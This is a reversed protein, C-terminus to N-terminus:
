HGHPGSLQRHQAGAREGDSNFNSGSESWPSNAGPDPASGDPSEPGPGPSAVELREREDGVVYGETPGM